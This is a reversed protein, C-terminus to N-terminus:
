LSALQGAGVAVPEPLQEDGIHTIRLQGPIEGAEADVIRGAVIGEAQDLYDAEVVKYKAM